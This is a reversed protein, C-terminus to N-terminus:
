HHSVVAGFLGLALAAIAVFVGVALLVTAIIGCIRGANTVSRGSPDMAGADMQKLDSSGMIWAVIGLPACMVLSLIGFVLILTGRHPKMTLNLTQNSSKVIRAGPRNLDIAQRDSRWTLNPPPFSAPRGARVRPPPGAGSM